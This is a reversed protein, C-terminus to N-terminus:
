LYKVGSVTNFFVTKADPDMIGDKILNFIGAMAATGEPTHFSGDTTRFLNGCEPCELHTIYSTISRM